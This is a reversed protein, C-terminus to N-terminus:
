GTFSRTFNKPGSRCWSRSLLFSASFERASLIARARPRRADNRRAMVYHRRRRWNRGLTTALIKIIWFALTVQPVKTVIADLNSDRMHMPEQMRNAAARSSNRSAACIQLRYDLITAAMDVPRKSPKSPLKGLLVHLRESTPPLKFNPSHCGGPEKRTVRCQQRYM